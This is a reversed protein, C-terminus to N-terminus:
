KVDGIELRETREEELKVTKIGSEGRVWVGIKAKSRGQPQEQFTPMYAVGWTGPSHDWLVEETSSVVRELPFASHWLEWSTM